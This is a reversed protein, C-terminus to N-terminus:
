GALPAVVVAPRAIDLARRTAEGGGDVLVLPAPAVRNRGDAKARYLARDATALLAPVDRGAETTVAVGISVTHKVTLGAFRMAAFERRLQEARQLAEAMSMDPLLCAFEEGGIRAFLDDPRMSAMVLDCFATLIRDGTQHGGTDNVEKFRDLDFLLLAAPRRDAITRALLPGGCDFFARRNAIGTLSDTLAARRQELEAREKSMAVRLFPVCFVAFLAEFAMVTVITGHSQGAAVASTLADAFPIRALLFGAHALVLLLTPWRSILERDRAYWVERAGLLAYAATIISMLAVRAPLSQSFSQIQFAAIWVAAGAALLPVSVRRGEFSRSGGWMMGYAVCILGNGLCVAWAVPILGHSSLLAAAAAAILYGSGWMALAPTSRNQMWSFLLLLGGSLSIFVTVAFLTPVDLAFHSAVVTPV